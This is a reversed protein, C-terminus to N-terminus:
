RRESNSKLRAVLAIKRSMKIVGDGCKLLTQMKDLDQEEVLPLLQLVCRFVPKALKQVHIECKTLGLSMGRCLHMSPVKSFRAQSIQRM